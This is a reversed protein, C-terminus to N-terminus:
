DVGSRRRLDVLSGPLLKSQCASVQRVSKKKLGSSGTHVRRRQAEKYWASIVECSRGAAREASEGASVPSRRGEEVRM